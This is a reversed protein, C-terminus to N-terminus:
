GQQEEADRSRARGAREREVARYLLASENAALGIGTGGNREVAARDADRRVATENEAEAAVRGAMRRKVDGEGIAAMLM